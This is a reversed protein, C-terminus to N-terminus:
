KKFKFNSWNKFVERNINMKEIGPIKITKETGLVNVVENSKFKKLLKITM